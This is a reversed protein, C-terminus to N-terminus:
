AADTIAVYVKVQKDNYGQKSVTITVEYADIQDAAWGTQMDVGQKLGIKKGDYTFDVAKLKADHNPTLSAVSETVRTVKSVTYTYGNAEVGDVNMKLDVTKASALVQTTDVYLAPASSKVTADPTFTIAGINKKPTVGTTEKNNCSVGLLSLAMVMVFISLIKKNM